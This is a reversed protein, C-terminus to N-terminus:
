PSVSSAGRAERAANVTQMLQEYRRDVTHDVLFEAIAPQARDFSQRISDIKSLCDATDAYRYILGPPAELVNPLNSFVLPFGFSLLEFGRNSITVAPNYPNTLDYPILACCCRSRVEELAELPTPEYVRANAHSLVRKTMESETISGVFHITTGADMIGQVVSEDIRENIYGWYLVDPRPLGPTPTEYRHRAWPFFLSVKDTAERIQREILYSVVLNYDAGTASQHLLRRASRKHPAIAASIYDDNVVHVIANNPFKERLFFFDYCFSLIVDDDNVSVQRKIMSTLFAADIRNLLPVIKLQHHLLHGGSHLTLSESPQESQARRGFRRKQFFHVEHGHALLM